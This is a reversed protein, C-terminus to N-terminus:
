RKRAEIRNQLWVASKRMQLSYLGRWQSALKWEGGNWQWGSTVKLFTFLIICNRQKFRKLSLREGKSYLGVDRITQLRSGAEGRVGHAGNEQENEVWWGRRSSGKESSHNEGGPTWAESARLMPHREDLDGWGSKREDNLPNKKKKVNYKSKTVM